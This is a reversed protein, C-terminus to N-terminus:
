VMATGNDTTWGWVGIRAGTEDGRCRSSLCVVVADPHHVRVGIRLLWSWGGGGWGRWMGGGTVAARGYCSRMASRRAVSVVAVVGFGRVAVVAARRVRPCRDCRASSRGPASSASIVSATAALVRLWSGEVFRAEHAISWHESASQPGQSAGRDRSVVTRCAPHARVGIAFRPGSGGGIEIRDRIIVPHM